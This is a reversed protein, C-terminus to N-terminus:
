VSFHVFNWGFKKLLHLVGVRPGRGKIKRGSRTTVVLRRDYASHSNYTSCLSFLFIFEWLFWTQPNNESFSVEGETQRREKEPGERRGWKVEPSSSSKEEHPISEWPHTTNRWATCNVYGVGRARKRWGDRTRIQLSALFILGRRTKRHWVNLLNKKKKVKEEGEKAEKKAKKSEKKAEKIRKRVNRLWLLVQLLEWLWQLQQQLKIVEKREEEWREKSCFLLCWYVNIGFWSFVFLCVFLFLCNCKSKPVLEGCNLIKVEAYPRSSPDTKQNEM